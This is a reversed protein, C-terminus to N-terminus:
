PAVAVAPPRRRGWGAVWRFVVEAPGQRFVLRWVTAVLAFGVFVLGVVAMQTALPPRDGHLWPWVWARGVALHALYASLTLQGLSVLPRAWGRRRRGDVFLALGIAVMATGTSLVYWALHNSHAGHDLFVGLGDRRDGGSARIGWSALPQLVAVALGGVVLAWRVRASTLSLGAIWMGIAFFGIWGVLPYGGTWLLKGAMGGVDRLDHYSAAGASGRLGHAGFAAVVTSPVAFAVIAVPLLTSRPLRRLLPVLALLVAYHPLILLVAGAQPWLVLGLVMMVVARRVFTADGTGRRALLGAGVGLVICFLPAARGHALGSITRLASPEGPRVTAVYHAMLMGLFAVARAIDVGIIRQRVAPAATAATAATAAMEARRVAEVVPAQVTHAM